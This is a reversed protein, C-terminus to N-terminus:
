SLVVERRYCLLCKKNITINLVTGSVKKFVTGLFTKTIDNRVLYTYPHWHLLHEAKLLVAAASVALAPNPCLVKLTLFWLTLLYRNKPLM